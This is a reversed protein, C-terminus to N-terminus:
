ECEAKMREFKGCTHGKSTSFPTTHPCRGLRGPHFIDWEAQWHICDVCEGLGIKERIITVINQLSRIQLDRRDEHRAAKRRTAEEEMEAQERREILLKVGFIVWAILGLVGIGTIILM